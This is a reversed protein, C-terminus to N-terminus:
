AAGGPQLARLKLWAEAWALDEATTIKRNAAPAPVVQVAHGLREILAVDDTALVGDEFARAHAEVMLDRRAGQPTQARWLNVRELTEIVRGDSARKLTDQLPEAALAAGYEHAALAVQDFLAPEAFPRAADHVLVVDADGATVELGAACSAQRTPGGPVKASPPTRRPFSRPASGSARRRACARHRSACAACRARSASRASCSWARSRCATRARPRWPSCCAWTRARSRSRSDGPWTRSCTATRSECAWASRSCPWCCRLASPM